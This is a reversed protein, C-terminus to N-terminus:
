ANNMRLVTETGCHQCTAVRYPERSPAAKAPNPSESRIEIAIAHPTEGNCDDCPELRGNPPQKVGTQPLKTAAMPM